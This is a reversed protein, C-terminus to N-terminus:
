NTYGNPYMTQPHDTCRTCPDIHVEIFHKPEHWELKYRTKNVKEVVDTLCPGAWNVVRVHSGARIRSDLHCGNRYPDEADAAPGDCVTYMYRTDLGQAFHATQSHIHNAM